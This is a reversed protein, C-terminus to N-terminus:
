ESDLGAAAELKALSTSRGFQAALYAESVEVFKKQEEIVPQIGVEGLRYAEQILKLNETLQPLIERAYIALAKDAAALRAYAAEVEREVSQRAFLHRSEASSKRARAEKLGAQNKDFYPIPVSLKLGVLYETDRDDMGQFSVVSSERSLAIGATLNPLREARALALEAEGKSKAAALQRLDPRNELALVKIEALDAAFPKQELSGVVSLTETLPAGMLSLLRLRDPILELEVEAKRGESRASEVRALNVDLEAIDGAAFRERTIQLLQNNLELSKQALDLRSEAWLLQYFGSKLELLLQREAEKIRSEYSVLESDAVALRKGRKGGTLFEQSVGVSISNESANGTLAGTTGELELVPNPYLGARIKGAAGIEVEERLAKLDGNNVRASAIVEQLTVARQEAQLPPAAAFVVTALAAVASLYKFTNQKM